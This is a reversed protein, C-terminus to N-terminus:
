ARLGADRIAGLRDILWFAEDHLIYNVSLVERGLLGGVFALRRPRDEVDNSIGLESLLAFIAQRSSHSLHMLSGIPPGPAAPTEDDSYLRGAPLAAIAQIAEAPLSVSAVVVTSREVDAIETPEGITTVTEAVVDLVPEREDEYRTLRLAAQIGLCTRSNATEWVVRGVLQNSAPFQEISARDLGVHVVGANDEAAM